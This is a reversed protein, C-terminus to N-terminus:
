LVFSDEEIVEGRTLERIISDLERTEYDIDENITSDYNYDDAMYDNYFDVNRLLIYGLLDEKENSDLDTKDLVSVFIDIDSLEEELNNDSFLAGINVMKRIENELSDIKNKLESSYTKEAYMKLKHLLGDLVKESKKVQESVSPLSIIGEKDLYYLNKMESLVEDFTKKDDDLVKTLVTEFFLQKKKDSSYYERSLEVKHTELITILDLIYQYMYNSEKLTVIENNKNDIISTLTGMYKSIIEDM